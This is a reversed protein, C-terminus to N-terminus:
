SYSTRPEIYIYRQDSISHLKDVEVSFNDRIAKLDAELLSKVNKLTKLSEKQNTSIEANVSIQKEAAALLSKTSHLEKELSDHAKTRSLLEVKINEIGLEAAALKEM